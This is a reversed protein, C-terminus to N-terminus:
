TCDIIKIEAHSRKLFQENKPTYNIQIRANKIGGGQYRDSLDSKEVFTLVFVKVGYYKFAEKRIEYVEDWTIEKVKGFINRLCIKQKDVTVVGTYYGLVLVLAILTVACLIACVLIVVDNNTIAYLFVMVNAFVLAFVGIGLLFADM